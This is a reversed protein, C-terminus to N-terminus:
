QDEEESVSWVPSSWLLGILGAPWYSVVQLPVGDLCPTGLEPREDALLHYAVADQESWFVREFEGVLAALAAMTLPQPLSALEIGQM